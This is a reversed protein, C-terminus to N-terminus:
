RMKLKDTKQYGAPVSYASAPAPEKKIEITESTSHIKAGMIEGTQEYAIWYGKIKRLEALSAEDIRMMLQLVPSYFKDLFQDVNFPVDTSAWVTMKLPMMMMSIAVEYGSCPWSGVTKTQGLPKVTVSMKMMALMQSMEPPVLKSLDLPLSTELYSKDQHDILYLLNKKTDIIISQDKSHSAFKDEGIWQETIENKEPQSQGMVTFADTHSKTRIHIDAAALAWSFLLVVLLSIFKKM